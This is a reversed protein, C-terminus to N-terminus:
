TGIGYNALLAALDSLVVCGSDDLDADPNFNPDGVCAGYVALLAALDSLDVDGDGDIDGVIGPIEATVAWFGGVLELDGGTLVSENADPQGIAGSLEFDGGTILMEGGGDITYWALDFQGFVAPTVFLCLLFGVAGTIRKTLM